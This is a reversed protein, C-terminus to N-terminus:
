SLSIMHSNEYRGMYLAQDDIVAQPASGKIVHDFKGIRWLILLWDSIDTAALSM